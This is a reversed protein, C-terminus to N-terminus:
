PVAYRITFLASFRGTDGTRSWASVPESGDLHLDPPHSGLPDGAYGDSEFAEVRKWRAKLRATVNDSLKRDIGAVLLYGLMDDPLTRRGASVTGALNRRIEEPEAPGPRDSHRRSRREEGLAM